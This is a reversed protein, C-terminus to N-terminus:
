LQSRSKSLPENPGLGSTIDAPLSLDNNNTNNLFVRTYYHILYRQDSFDQIPAPQMGGKVFKLYIQVTVPATPVVSNTSQIFEFEKAPTFLVRVQGDLNQPAIAENYLRLTENMLFKLSTREPRFNQSVNKIEIIIDM